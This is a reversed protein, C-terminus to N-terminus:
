IIFFSNSTYRRTRPLESWFVSKSIVRGSAALGMRFSSYMSDRRDLSYAYSSKKRLNFIKVQTPFYRLCNATNGRWFAAVGEHKFIQIFCDVIGRYERSIRGQKMMEGQSQLMLKVREVPAAATKSVVAAGGSIIFSGAFSGEAGM